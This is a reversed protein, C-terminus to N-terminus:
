AGGGNKVGPPLVTPPLLEVVLQVLGPGRQARKRNALAGREAFVGAIRGKLWSWVRLTRNRGWAVVTVVAVTLRVLTDLLVDPFQVIHSREM